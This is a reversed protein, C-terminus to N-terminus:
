MVGSNAAPATAAAIAAAGVATAAGVTAGSEARPSCVRMSKPGVSLGHGNGPM